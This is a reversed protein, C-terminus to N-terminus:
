LVFMRISFNLFFENGSSDTNYDMREDQNNLFRM